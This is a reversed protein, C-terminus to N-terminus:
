SQDIQSRKGYHGRAIGSKKITKAPFHRHQNLAFISFFENEENCTNPQVIFSALVNSNTQVLGMYVHDILMAPIFYIFEQFSFDFVTDFYMYLYCSFSSTAM